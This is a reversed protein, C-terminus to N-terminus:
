EFPLRQTQGDIVTYTSRSRFAFRRARALGSFFFYLRTPSATGFFASVPATPLFRTFRIKRSAYLSVSFFCLTFCPYRITIEDRAPAIPLVVGSISRSSSFARRGSFRQIISLVLRLNGYILEDRAAYDGAQARLLLSKKETDTLLPLKATNVGCIEVKNYYM